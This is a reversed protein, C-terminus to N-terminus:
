YRGIALDPCASPCTDSKRSRGSSPWVGWLVAGRTPGACRVSPLTEGPPDRVARLLPERRPQRGPLELVAHLPQVVPRLSDAILRRGFPRHSLAETTMSLPS